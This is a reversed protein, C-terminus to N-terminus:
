RYLIRSGDTEKNLKNSLHLGELVFEIASAACAPTDPEGLKAVAAGLGAINDMGDVDFVVWETEATPDTSGARPEDKLPKLVNGKLLCHDFSAHKKLVDAFEDVTNVNDSHSTFNRVFPYSDKDYEGSELKTFKKTLPVNAQLFTIQM